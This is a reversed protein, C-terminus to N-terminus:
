KFAVKRSRGDVTADTTCEASILKGGNYVYKIKSRRGSGEIEEGILRGDQYQMTREYIKAARRDAGPLRPHAALQMGEWEFELLVGAAGSRTDAIERAQAVRGQEDYTLRFYYPREWVFPNFFRNGAIGM